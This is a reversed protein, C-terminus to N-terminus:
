CHLQVSLSQDDDEFLVEVDVVDPVHLYYMISKDSQM